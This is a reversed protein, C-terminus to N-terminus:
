RTVGTRKIYGAVLILNRIGGCVKADSRSAENERLERLDLYGSFVIVVDQAAVTYRLKILHM